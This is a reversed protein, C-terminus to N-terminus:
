ESERCTKFTRIEDDSVLMVESISKTEGKPGGMVTTISGSSIVVYPSGEVIYWDNLHESYRRIYVLDGPKFHRM